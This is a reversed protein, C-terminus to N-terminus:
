TLAVYWYILTDEPLDRLRQLSTWFQKPTGEFMKGCGLSFLADGVFAMSQDPFWYAVHGKTHGGVGIVKGHYNGFQISDGHGVPHDIGPIKHKEDKPGVIIVGNQKLEINGDTHDHHHHTNFIHTLKWGRKSLEHQYDRADPTDIAATAGTVPDHLLYGYNDSRSPFQAVTFPPMTSRSSTATSTSFCAIAEKSSLGFTRQTTLTVFSLALIAISSPNRRTAAAKSINIIRAPYSVNDRSLFFRNKTFLM